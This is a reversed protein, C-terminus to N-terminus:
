EAEPAPGDLTCPLARIDDRLKVLLDAHTRSMQLSLHQQIHDAAERLAQRRVALALVEMKGDVFTHLRMSRIYERLTM